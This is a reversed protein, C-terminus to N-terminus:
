LLVNIQRPLILVILLALSRGQIVCFFIIFLLLFPLLAFCLFFSYYSVVKPPLFLIQFLVFLNTPSRWASLLM